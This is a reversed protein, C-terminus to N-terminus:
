AVRKKDFCGHQRNNSIDTMLRRTMTNAQSYERPNSLWGVSRPPFTKAGPGSTRSVGLTIKTGPWCINLINYKSQIQLLRGMLLSDDDVINPWSTGCEFVWLRRSSRFPAVVQLHTKMNCLLTPPPPTPPPVSCKVLRKSSCTLM